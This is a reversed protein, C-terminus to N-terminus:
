FIYNKPVNKREFGSLPIYKCRCTHKHHLTLYVNKGSKLLSVKKYDTVQSLSLQEKVIYCCTM